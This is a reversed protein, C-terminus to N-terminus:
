HRCNKVVNGPSKRIEKFVFM